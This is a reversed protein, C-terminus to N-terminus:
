RGALHALLLVVSKKVLKQKRDNAALLWSSHHVRGVASEGNAKSLQQISFRAAAREFHLLLAVLEFQRWREPQRRERSRALAHRRRRRRRIASLM